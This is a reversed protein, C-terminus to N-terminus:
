IRKPPRVESPDLEALVKECAEYGIQLRRNTDADERSAQAETGSEILVHPAEGRLRQLVEVLNQHPMTLAYTERDEVPRWGIDRLLWFDDAFEAGLRAATDFDRTRELAVWFDEISGLHNRVLEYLGERQEREITTTIAPM